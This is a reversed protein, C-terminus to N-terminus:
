LLLDCNFTSFSFLCHTFHEGRDIGDDAIPAPEVRGKCASGHKMCPRSAPRPSQDEVGQAYVVKGGVEGSFLPPHRHDHLAAIRPADDLEKLFPEDFPLVEDDDAHGAPAHHARFLHAAAEAVSLHKGDGELAVGDRRLGRAPFLPEGERIDRGSLHAVQWYGM